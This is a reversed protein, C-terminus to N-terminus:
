TQIGQAIRRGERLAAINLERFKDPTSKAVVTELTEFGCIGSLSVLAGLSIVNAVRPNGLARAAATTQLAHLARGGTPPTPVRDADIVVLANGDLLSGADELAGQDLLVLYDLRTVLPYDVIGHHAVIDSRSSGGRSTPEYTQSQAVSMGEAVLADALLRGALGLGQGGTGALRIQCGNM